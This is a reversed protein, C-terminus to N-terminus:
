NEYSGFMETMQGAQDFILIQAKYFLACKNAISKDAFLGVKTLADATMCNDALVSVSGKLSKESYVTSGSREAVSSSALANQSLELQRFIPAAETGLRLICKKESTNFFRLDGGANVMGRLQREQLFEAVRDVIYGKAIGNLDLHRKHDPWPNFAGESIEFFELARRIVFALEASNGSKLIASQPDKLNFIKELNEALEFAETLLDPQNELVEIEFFTGLLPRSRKSIHSLRNM